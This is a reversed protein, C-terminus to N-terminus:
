DRPVEDSPRDSLGPPAAPRDRRSRCQRTPDIGVSRLFALDEANIRFTGATPPLRRRSKVSRAGGSTEGQRKCDLLLYLSYGAGRIQDLKVGVEPSEAIVECLRESLEELLERLRDDLSTRRTRTVQRSQRVAMLLARFALLERRVLVTM